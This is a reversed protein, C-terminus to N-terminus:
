PIEPPCLFLNFIAKSNIHSGAISKISSGVDPKDDLSESFM